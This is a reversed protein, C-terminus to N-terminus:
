RVEVDYEGTIDLTELFELVNDATVRRRPLAQNEALSTRSGVELTGPVLVESQDV